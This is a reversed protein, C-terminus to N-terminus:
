EAPNQADTRLAAFGSIVVLAAGLVAIWSGIQRSGGYAWAFGLGGAAAGAAITVPYRLWGVPALVAILTAASTALLTFWVEPENWGTREITQLSGIQISHRLWPLFLSVVLLTVGVVITADARSIRRGGEHRHRGAGATAV